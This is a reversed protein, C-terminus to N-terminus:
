RQSIKNPGQNPYRNPYDLFGAKAPKALKNTISILIVLLWFQSFERPNLKLLDHFICLFMFSFKDHSERLPKLGRPQTRYNRLFYLGRLTKLM